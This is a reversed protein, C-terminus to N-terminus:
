RNFVEYIAFKLYDTEESGLLVPHDKGARRFEVLRLVKHADAAADQLMKQFRASSLHYSCSATILVGGDRVLKMGQLNIEKYGRLAGELVQRSKAFAPPDLIVVDWTKKENVQNRLFDFANEAVFQTRHLFGNLLANRKAMEIAKESIDVCTVKKAGYLCAHLMFSGTHSFCDLVEAGDWFPNKIEKGKKDQPRGEPDQYIGHSAGWGTMIPKLSARNERQDFFYGTKQGEAVDVMIKLENEQLTIQTDFPTDVFGVREELGELRRVSVDSREYIGRPNFIKKLAQFIWQRRVEMGLALIQVVLVDEYKDIILGPLFDAEGHVVRCSTINSLLWQRRKWASQIKNLFFEEDISNESYSIVRLILQSVPNYFGQALFHGDHNLIHVIDGGSPNGEIRGIEGPYIWPHGQELRRKRNRILFVRPISM